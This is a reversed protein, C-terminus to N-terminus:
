TVFFELSRNLWGNLWKAQSPNKQVIRGLMKVREIVLQNILKMPNTENIAKLSSPGLVGDDKVHVLRQIYQIALTPGSTVGFDVLLHQLRPDVVRDFGPGTVYKRLYIARAEDETVKNDAWAEPNSSEAIGFQTRGGKDTPDNTSTSGGEAQLVANIISTINPNM